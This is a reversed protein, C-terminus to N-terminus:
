EDISCSTVINTESTPKIFAYIASIVNEMRVLREYDNSASGRQRYISLYSSQMNVHNTLQGALV